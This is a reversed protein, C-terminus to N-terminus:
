AKEDENTAASRDKLEYAMCQVTKLILGRDGPPCAKYYGTLQEIEREENPLVPYFLDGSPVGLCTVLDYLKEFSPNITGKEIKAIERVSVGAKDSLQQQTLDRKKRYKRMCDGLHKFIDDPM